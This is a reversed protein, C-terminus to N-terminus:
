FYDRGKVCCSCTNTKKPAMFLFMAHKADCGNTHTPRGSIRSDNACFFSVEISNLPLFPKDSGFNMENVVLFPFRDMHRIKRKLEILGNNGQIFCYNTHM